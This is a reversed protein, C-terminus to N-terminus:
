YPSRGNECYFLFDEELRYEGRNRLDNCINVVYRESMENDYLVGSLKSYLEGENKKLSTLSRKSFWNTKKM